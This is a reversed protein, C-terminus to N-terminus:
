LWWWFAYALQRLARWLVPTAQWAELTVERSLARDERIADHLERAFAPCDVVLNLELNHRFSRSDLNASGLIALGGDLVAAKAHLMRERREWIRAGAKLLRGFIARSAAQAVPQDSHGPVIFSLKVGRRAAHLLAGLLRPGPIFYANAFVAQDKLQGLSVLLHKQFTRAGGNLTSVVQIPVDRHWGNGEVAEVRPALPEFPKGGSRHWSAAFDRELDETAQGAIEIGLDRFCQANSRCDYADAWNASGAVARSGDAILLKRHNRRHWLHLPLRSGIPHFIRLDLGSSRLMDMSEWSGAHDVVGRVKVGRAQAAQLKQLFRRGTEDNAWIYIEFHLTQQARDILSEMASLMGGGSALLRVGNGSSM